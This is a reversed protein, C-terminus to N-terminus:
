HSFEFDGINDHWNRGLTHMEAGFDLVNLFDSVERFIVIFESELNRSLDQWKRKSFHHHQRRM